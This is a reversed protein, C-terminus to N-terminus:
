RLTSREFVNKRTTDLADLNAQAEAVQQSRVEGVRKLLEIEHSSRLLALAEADQKELVSLLAGGLSKLEACLELAKQVLVNFRYHPRPANIDAMVAALDLGAATARVLLAPDIPPEFLPLQREIGDINMCHRLKFLRDEVISWLDLLKDNHPVCFYLSGLSGLHQLAKLLESWDFQGTNGKEKLWNSFQRLLADLAEQLHMAALAEVGLWANSFKDLRDSIASYSIPQIAARQPIRHPKDGLLRAALIYLQTSEEVLEPRESRFLQDGWAILNDLYKMMTTFQYARVRTRAIAHPRFPHAKWYDISDEFSQEEGPQQGPQALMQLLHDISSSDVAKRFPEFRWYRRAPQQPDPIESTTPNFILHFWRQAEAFRQGKSLQTAILLPIHFFIEWNYGSYPLSLGFDVARATYSAPDISSALSMGSPHSLKQNNLNLAGEIEGVYAARRLLTVYDHGDSFLRYQSASGSSLIFLRDTDDKYAWITSQGSSQPISQSLYFRGPTTSWNPTSGSELSFSDNQWDVRERFGSEYYDRDDYSPLDSGPGSSQSLSGDDAFLFSGLHLMCVKREPESILPPKSQLDFIFGALCDISDFLAPDGSLHLPFLTEKETTKYLSADVVCKITINAQVLNQAQSIIPGSSSYKGDDDTFTKIVIQNPVLTFPRHLTITNIAITVNAHSVPAYKNDWQGLVTGHVFYNVFGEPTSPTNTQKDPLPKLMLASFAEVAGYCEILVSNDAHQAKFAFSNREDKGLLSTHSLSERSKKVDTWGESTHRGWQMQVRWGHEADQTSKSIVAWAIYIVGNLEFLMVHDSNISLTIEEWPTWYSTLKSSLIWQRYFHRFPQEQTRGVIHVIRGNQAVQEEFMAVVTLHAIDNLKDLYRRLAIVAQEHTLDSQLLDSELQRFIESKDDRLEPEIWNEPYLFVKRNAEWVRYNKMWAWLQTKIEGPKVETLNLFVQQVFLQVASIAQKIRSTRACPGMQVDILYCDHLADVDRLGNIHVLYAVLADRQRERLRDSVPKMREAWTDPGFRGRFLQRALLAAASDPPNAILSKAAVTTTGLLTLVHLFTVLELLRAPNRYDGPWTMNLGDAACADKVSQTDLELADALIQQVATTNPAAEIANVHKRGDPLVDRLRFLQMFKRWDEFAAPNNASVPLMALDLVAFRRRTLWAVDSETAQVRNLLLAIKHLRAMLDFLEPFQTATIRTRLDSLTFASSTLMDLANPLYLLVRKLAAREVDLAEALWTVVHDRLLHEELRALIFAIRDELIPKHTLLDTVEAQSLFVNNANGEVYSNANDFLTDFAQDIAAKNAPVTTDQAAKLTDRENVNLWGLLVM